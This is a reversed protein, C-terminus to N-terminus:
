AAVVKYGAKLIYDSVVKLIEDINRFTDVYCDNKPAKNDVLILGKDTAETDFGAARLAEYKTKNDSKSLYILEIQKM